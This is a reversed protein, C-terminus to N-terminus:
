SRLTVIERTPFAAKAAAVISDQHHISAVLIRVDPGVADDLQEPGIVPVDGFRGGLKDSSSDVIAAIRADRLPGALLKMSLQGAGWVVVPGAGVTSQLRADMEDLLAASDRVYQRIAVGLDLDPDRTVNTAAAPNQEFLGFVAPYPDVPSCMVTKTGPVRTVFGADALLRELLRGSFHNIHETNFDHFPAVLHEHYRAADPVEIYVLGGPKVLARLGAVAAQVDVIHELVHSLVVVDFTDADAPPTIFSGTITPM